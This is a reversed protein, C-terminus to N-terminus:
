LEYEKFPTLAWKNDGKYIDPTLDDFMGIHIPVVRRAKLADALRTADTANMNNGAGNVPLFATDTVGEPIDELIVSSFLTDGAM